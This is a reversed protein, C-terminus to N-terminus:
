SLLKICDASIINTHCCSAPGQTNPLVVGGDEDTWFNEYQKYEACADDKKQEECIIDRSLNFEGKAMNISRSLADAHQMRNGPRHEVTYDYKSLKVAWRTLRSSPDNLSLLWKLARHETYM